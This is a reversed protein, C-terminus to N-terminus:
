AFRWVLIGIGLALLLAMLSWGLGLRREDDLIHIQEPHSRWLLGMSHCWVCLGNSEAPESECIRCLQM